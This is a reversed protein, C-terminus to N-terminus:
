YPAPILNAIIKIITDKDKPNSIAVLLALAVLTDKDIRLFGNQDLYYVFLLSAIRKNGDFFPHDKVVFYLLHSAKEAATPYLDVGDFSQYLNGIIGPLRDGNDRGFLDGAEKKSTLDNKLEAIIKQCDEYELHYKGKTGKPLKLNGEDYKYLLSFSDTYNDIIQILDGKKGELLDSDASNRIFKIANQLELFAQRQELLRKENVAYGKVLYDRLIKNAWIRFQTGQKSKVRFGVSIIVDLNYYAVEYTKGDAATTAFKAVVSNKSLEKERFINSIHRSIVSKDRCFLEAMQDLSLWVTEGLLRVEIKAKGLAYIKVEGKKLEEKKM